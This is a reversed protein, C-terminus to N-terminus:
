VEEKPKLEVEKEPYFMYTDNYGRYSYTVTIIEECEKAPTLNITDTM